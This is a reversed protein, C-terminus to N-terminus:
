NLTAKQVDVSVDILYYDFFSFSSFILLYPSVFFSNSTKDKIESPYEFLSIESLNTTVIEVVFAWTCLM